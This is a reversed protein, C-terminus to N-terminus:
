WCSAGRPCCFLKDWFLGCDPYAREFSDRKEIDPDFTDRAFCALQIQIFLFLFSPDPAPNGPQFLLGLATM